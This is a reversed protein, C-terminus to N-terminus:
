LLIISPCAIGGWLYKIKPHPLIRKHLFVDGKQTEGVCVNRSAWDMMESTVLMLCSWSEQENSPFFLEVGESLSFLLFINHRPLNLRLTHRIFSWVLIYSIYVNYLLWFCDFHNIWSLLIWSHHLQWSASKTIFLDNPHTVSWIEVRTHALFILTLSGLILLYWCCM